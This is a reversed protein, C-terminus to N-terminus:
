KPEHGIINVRQTSWGVGLRSDSVVSSVPVICGDAEQGPNSVYPCNDADNNVGDLDWDEDQGDKLAAKQDSTPEPLYNITWGTVAVEDLPKTEAGFIQRSDELEGM